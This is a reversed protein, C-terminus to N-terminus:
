PRPGSLRPAYIFDYDMARTTEIDGGPKTFVFRRYQSTFFLLKPSFHTALANGRLDKLRKTLITGGLGTGAAVLINKRRM